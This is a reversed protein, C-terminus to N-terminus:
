VNYNKKYQQVSLEYDISTQPNGLQDKWANNNIGVKKFGIKEYLHQARLNKINTDLIIKSYNLTDFLYDILMKLYCTGYGKGHESFECIKIGIEVVGESVKRYSMEGILKSNRELILRKNEITDTKILKIIRETSTMLGQPFGAHEMVKGDNWWICLQDADNETADRIVLEGQKILM